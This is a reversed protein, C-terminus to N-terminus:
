PRGGISEDSYASIAIGFRNRSRPVRELTIHAKFSAGRSTFQGGGIYWTFPLVIEWSSGDDSKHVIQPAGTLEAWTLQVGENITMIVQSRDLAMVFRRHADGDVFDNEFGDVQLQWDSSSFKHLKKTLEASRSLIDADTLTPLKSESLEIIRNDEDIGYALEVMDRSSLSLVSFGLCASTIISFGTLGILVKSLRRLSKNRDLIINAPSSLNKDWVVTLNQKGLLLQLEKSLDRTESM